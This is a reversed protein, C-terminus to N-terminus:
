YGYRALQLNIMRRLYAAYAPDCQQLLRLRDDGSMTASRQPFTLVRSQVPVPVLREPAVCRIEEDDRAIQSYAM